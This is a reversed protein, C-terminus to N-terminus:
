PALSFNSYRLRRTSHYTEDGYHKTGRASEQVSRLTQLVLALYTRIYLYEKTLKLKIRAHARGAQGTYRRRKPRCSSPGPCATSQACVLALQVDRMEM